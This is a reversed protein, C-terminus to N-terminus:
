TSKFIRQKRKNVRTDWSYMMGKLLFRSTIIFTNSVFWFIPMISRPLDDERFFYMFFIIAVCAITISKFSTTIVKIGTYQLVSRYLGLKVFLPTAIIPVLIFLWYNEDIYSNWLEGFRLTFSLWLSFVLIVVDFSLTIIQKYFRNLTLLKTKM